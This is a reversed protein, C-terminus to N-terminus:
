CRQFFILIRVDVDNAVMMKWFKLAVLGMNIEFGLQHPGHLDWGELEESIASPFCDM